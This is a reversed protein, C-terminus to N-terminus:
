LVWVYSIMSVIYCCIVTSLVTSRVAPSRMRGGSALVSREGRTSRILKTELNRRRRGGSRPAGRRVKRISAPGAAARHVISKGPRVRRVSEGACARSKSHGRRCHQRRSHLSSIFSNRTPALPGFLGGDEVRIPRIAVERADHGVEGAFRKCTEPNVILRKSRFRTLAAVQSRELRSFLVLRFDQEKGVVCM